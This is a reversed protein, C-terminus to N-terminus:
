DVEAGVKTGLSHCAGSHIMMVYHTVCEPIVGGRDGVVAIVVGGAQRGARRLISVHGGSRSWSQRCESSVRWKGCM